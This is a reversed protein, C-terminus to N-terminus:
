HLYDGHCMVVHILPSSCFAIQNIQFSLKPRNRCWSKSGNSMFFSVGGIYPLRNQIDIVNNYHSDCFSIQTAKYCGQSSKELNIGEM